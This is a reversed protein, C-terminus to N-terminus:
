RVAHLPEGTRAQKKAAVKLRRDRENQILRQVEAPSAVGHLTIEIAGTAATGIEINGFDLLRGMLNQITEISRIDEFRVKTVTKNIGLIGECSEIGEAGVSYRVNYIRGVGYMLAVLPMLAFIPLSLAIRKGGMRFLEGSIVSWPLLDSLIKSAACLLLFVALMGM